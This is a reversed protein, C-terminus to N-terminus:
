NSSKRIFMKRIWGITGNLTKVCAWDKTYIWDYVQRNSEGPFLPKKCENETYLGTKTEEIVNADKSLKEKLNSTNEEGPLTPKEYLFTSEVYVVYRAEDAVAVLPLALSTILLMKLNMTM